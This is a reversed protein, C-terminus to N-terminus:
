SAEVDSWIREWKEPSSPQDFMHLQSADASKEQFYLEIEEPKLLSRVDVTGGILVRGQDPQELGAIIRLLTTKGSGSPGLLAIFEDQRIDLDVGAVAQVDGFRKAVSRLSLAAGGIDGGDM